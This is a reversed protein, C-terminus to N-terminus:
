SKCGQLPLITLWAQKHSEYHLHSKIVKWRWVYEVAYPVVM